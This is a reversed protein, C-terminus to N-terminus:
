KRPLSAVFVTDRAGYGNFLTTVGNLYAGTSWFLLYDGEAIDSPLSLTGPLRDISDCTPGFAVFEETRAPTEVAASRVLTFDPVDMNPFESLGGYIGDNLYVRGKRVSKVQVAYGFSDAVMARGPECVLAPRTEFVAMATAIAAFYPGLDTAAGHRLAPFGGGVNLRKITIGAKQAIRSAAHIYTTWAAPDACQTGVHFTLAPAFGLAAARQLLLIADSEEAGFKSGFNYAAGAVPLKFRVSVEGNAGLTALKELEGLDDVSWSQVGAAMAMLIESKGRVPNNYHLDATPAHRRILDIEQPSAVDFATMGGAVLQAIVEDAPNAKVAYTVLGDFHRQFLALQSQLVSPAFFHVPLDPSHATLYAVPTESLIARQFM